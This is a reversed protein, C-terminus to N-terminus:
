DWYRRCKEVARMVRIRCANQTIGLRESMEEYGIREEFRWILLRRESETLERPLVADLPEKLPEAELSFFDELPVESAPAKRRRENMIQYKLTVFLWGTPNPHDVLESEHLLTNRLMPILRHEIHFLAEMDVPSTSRLTTGRTNFHDCLGQLANALDETTSIEAFGTVLVLLLERM